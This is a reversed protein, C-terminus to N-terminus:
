RLSTEAWIGQKSERAAMQWDHLTPSLYQDDDLRAWGARVLEDNIIDGSGSLVIAVIDGSGDRGRDIVRVHGKTRECFRSTFDRADTGFPQEIDPCDIGYLVITQEEEGIM